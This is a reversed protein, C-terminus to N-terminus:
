YGGVLFCKGRESVFGHVSKNGRGAVGTPLTPSHVVVLHLWSKKFFNIILYICIFFSLITILKANYM